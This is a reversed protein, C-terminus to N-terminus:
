QPDPDGEPQKSHEGNKLPQRHVIGHASRIEDGVKPDSPDSVELGGLSRLGDDNLEQTRSVGHDRPIVAEVDFLKGVGPVDIDGARRMGIEM